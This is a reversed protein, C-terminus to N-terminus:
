DTTSLKVASRQAGVIQFSTKEQVYAVVKLSDNDLESNDFNKPLDIVVSGQQKSSLDQKQALDVTRLVRVVNTHTLEEGANEGRPVANGVEAEVIAINLQHTENAGEVHFQAEVKEDEALYRANVEVKVTPAQKLVGSIYRRASRENSGVFGYQGNVIMQPTYVSRSRMAKAYARQRATFAADSYPDTWGLRNWYDVHFTLPLVKNGATAYERALKALLADAPPCSSCGQSTFLEVVAFGTDSTANSEEAHSSVLNTCGLTLFVLPLIVLLTLCRTM